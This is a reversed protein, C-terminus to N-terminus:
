GLVSALVPPLLTITATLPDPFGLLFLSAVCLVAWALWFPRGRGTMYGALSIALNIALCIYATVLNHAGFASLFNPAAVALILATILVSRDLAKIKRVAGAM